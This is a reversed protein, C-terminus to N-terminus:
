CMIIRADPDEKMIARTAEIGDMGPMVIDMTVLSPKLACYRELAESGTSAHGVVEFAGEKQLIDAIMARMFAADDVILVTHSM